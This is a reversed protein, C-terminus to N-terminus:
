FQLIVYIGHHLFEYWFHNRYTSVYMSLGALGLFWFNKRNVSVRHLMSFNSHKGELANQRLFGTVIQMTIGAIM